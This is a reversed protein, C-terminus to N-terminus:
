ECDIRQADRKVAPLYAFREYIEDRKTYERFAEGAILLVKLVTDDSLLPDPNFDSNKETALSFASKAIIPTIDLRRAALRFKRRLIEDPVSNKDIEGRVYDHVAHYFEKTLDLNTRKTKRKGISVNVADYLNFTGGFSQLQNGAVILDEKFQKFIKPNISKLTEFINKVAVWERSIARRNTILASLTILHTGIMGAFDSYSVDMENLCRGLVAGFDTRSKDIPKRRNETHRKLKEFASMFDPEFQKFIIPDINQLTKLIKKDSVWIKSRAIRGSILASIDTHFVKIRKAFDVSEIGMARLCRGLVAGFDTRNEDIRDYRSRM